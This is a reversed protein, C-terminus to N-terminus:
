IRAKEQAGGAAADRCHGTSRDRTVRGQRPRVLRHPGCGAFGILLIARDRLGRLGHDLTAIMRMLDEACVAEKQDPPRGHRRRIGSMVEAIHRDARDLPQGRQACTWVIASLRREITRVANPKKGPSPPESASAALYLGVVQPDQPLPDLGKRRCWATYHRWDSAYARLTAAAKAGRAYDKATEVLKELHAPVGSTPGRVPLPREITM